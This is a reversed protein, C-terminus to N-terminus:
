ASPRTARGGADAARRYWAARRTSAGRSCSTTAASRPWRRRCRAAPGSAPGCPAGASRVGTEAVDGAMWAAYAASRGCWAAGGPQPRRPRRRDGAGGVGARRSAAAPVRLRAARRRPSRRARRRRPRAALRARRAARPPRRRDRDLRAPGAGLLRRDAREIWDVQHRAHRERSRSPGDTPASSSPASRGCRRWCCTGATPHGCSWRASPSSTSRPPSRRGRRRRLDGRRRGGHVLRRVGVPRRVDAAPARRAARVVVVGGREALRPPVVHPLGVVAALFRHDLGAAVEAVDLTHLRAAALEIALPLGDLRRVIEAICALEGRSGPRLRAGRRPGARRVAAVPRRTARRRGVAADAGRVAARGAGAPAGPEHDGGDREPVHRAPARGARRDSRPRARLQRAAARDRHRRARRGGARGARCGPRGDIALAAAVVDVASEESATALECLVVPRDPRAARLRHGVEVLLRTKGVGGPGVLTVLRHRRSWDGDGRGVLADRGLLSTAPVPLRSAPAWAAAGPRRRAARRAPRGAGAVARHRARRRAAAPLRRVGAAGRGHSRTAALAAM